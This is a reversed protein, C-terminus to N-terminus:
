VEKLFVIVAKQGRHEPFASLRGRSDPTDEYITDVEEFLFSIQTGQPLEKLTARKPKSMIAGGYFRNEQANSSIYM